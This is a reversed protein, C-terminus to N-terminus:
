ESSELPCSKYLNKSLSTVNEGSLFVGSVARYAAGDYVWTGYTGSEASSHGWTTIVPWGNIQEDLVFIPSNFFDGVQLRTKGDFIQFPCGGTGCTDSAGQIISDPAGDGNLDLRLGLVSTASDYGLIDLNLKLDSADIKTPIDRGLCLKPAKAATLGPMCCLIGLLLLTPNTV